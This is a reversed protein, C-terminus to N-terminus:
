SLHSRKSHLSLHQPAGNAHQQGDTNGCRIAEMVIPIFVVCNLQQGLSHQEGLSQQGGLRQQGGLLQQGPGQGGYLRGVHANGSQPQQSTGTGIGAIYLM